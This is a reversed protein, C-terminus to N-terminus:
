PICSFTFYTVDVSQMFYVEKEKEGWIAVERALEGARLSVFIEM